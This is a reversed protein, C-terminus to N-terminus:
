LSTDDEYFGPFPKVERFVQEGDPTVLPFIDYELLHEAMRQIGDAPLDTCGPQLHSLSLSDRRLNCYVISQLPIM